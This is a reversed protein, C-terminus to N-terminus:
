VNHWRTFLSEGRVPRHRIRREFVLEMVLGDWDRYYYVRDFDAVERRVEVELIGAYLVKNEVVAGMYQSFVAGWWMEDVKQAYPLYSM